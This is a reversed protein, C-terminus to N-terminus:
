SKRGPQGDEDTTPRWQRLAAFPSDKEPPPCNCPEQNRNAGCEPCLGACAAQCLPIMPLALVLEETVLRKVSCFGDELYVVDGPMEQESHFAAPDAGFAYLRDVHLEVLNEFPALCRACQLTLRCRVEGTVRLGEEDPHGTLTVQADGAPQVEDGLNTLATGPLIGALYKPGKDLDKRHIGSTALNMVTTGAQKHSSDVM